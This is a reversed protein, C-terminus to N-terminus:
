GRRCDLTTNQPVASHIICKARELCLFPLLDPGAGLSWPGRRRPRERCPMRPEGCASLRVPDPLPRPPSSAGRGGSCWPAPSGRWSECVQSCTACDFFRAATLRRGAPEFHILDPEGLTLRRSSPSRTTLVSLATPVGRRGEGVGRHGCRWGGLCEAQLRISRETPVPTIM